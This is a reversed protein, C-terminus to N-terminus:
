LACFYLNGSQEDRRERTNRQLTSMNLRSLQRGDLDHVDGLDTVGILM